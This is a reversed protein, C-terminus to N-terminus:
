SKRLKSLKPKRIKQHNMKIVLKRKFQVINNIKNLM